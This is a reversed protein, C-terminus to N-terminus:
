KNVQKVFKELTKNYNKAVEKNDKNKNYEQIAKMLDAGDITSETLESLKKYGNSYHMHKYKNKGNYDLQKTVDIYAKQKMTENAIVEGGLVAMVGALAVISGPVLICILACYLAYKKCIKNVGDFLETIQKTDNISNKLAKKQKDSLADAFTYNKNLSADAEITTLKSFERAEKYNNVYDAIEDVYHKLTKGEQESLLNKYIRKTKNSVNPLDRNVQKVLKDFGKIDRFDLIDNLYNFYNKNHLNMLDDNNFYMEM